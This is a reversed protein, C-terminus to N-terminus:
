KDEERTHDGREIMEAATMYTAEIYAFTEQGKAIYERIKDGDALKRFHAVVRARETEAGERRELALADTWPAGGELWEIHGAADVHEGFAELAAEAREARAIAEAHLDARVYRGVLLPDQPDKDSCPVCWWKRAPSESDADDETREWCWVREPAKTDSM